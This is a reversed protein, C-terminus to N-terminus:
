RHHASVAKTLEGATKLGAAHSVDGLSLMGVMRKNEDIVPLRRVKKREMLDAAEEVDEDDRCWIIGATMVDRATMSEIDKGDALARLCLDRDTVMGVLKDGEGIPVAGIDFEKMMKALKRVPTDPSVWEVGKHMVQKTKM